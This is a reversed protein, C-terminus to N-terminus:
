FFNLWTKYGNEIGIFIINLLFRSTVWMRLKQNTTERMEMSLSGRFCTVILVMLKYDATFTQLSTSASYLPPIPLLVIAYQGSCLALPVPLAFTRHICPSFVCICSLIFKWIFLLSGCLFLM